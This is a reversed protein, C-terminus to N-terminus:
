IWIAGEAKTGLTHGHTLLAEEQIPSVSLAGKQARPACLDRLTKTFM